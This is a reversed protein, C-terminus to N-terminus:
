EKTKVKKVMTAMFMEHPYNKDNASVVPGVLTWGKDLLGSITMELQDTEGKFILCQNKYKQM